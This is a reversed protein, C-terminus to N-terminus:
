DALAACRAARRAWRRRPVAKQLLEIEEITSPYLQGSADGIAHPGAPKKAFTEVAIMDVADAKLVAERKVLSEEDVM